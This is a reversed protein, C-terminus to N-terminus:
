PSRRFGIDDRSGSTRRAEVAKRVAYITSSGGLLYLWESGLKPLSGDHSASAARVYQISFAITALLLQVREVSVRSPQSKDVLLGRINITSNLLKLVVLVLLGYVFISAELDLLRSASM